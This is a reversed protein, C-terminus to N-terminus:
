RSPLLVLWDRKLAYTPLTQLFTVLNTTLKVLVRLMIFLSNNESTAKVYLKSTDWIRLAEKSFVGSSAKLYGEINFFPHTRYTKNSYNELILM